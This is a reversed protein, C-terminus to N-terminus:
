SRPAAISQPQRSNARLVLLSRFRLLQNHQLSRRVRLIQKLRFLAFPHHSLNQPKNRRFSALFFNKLEPNPGNDFRRVVLGLSFVSAPGGKAYNNPPCPSRLARFRAPQRLIAARSIERAAM